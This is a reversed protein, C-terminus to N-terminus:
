TSWGKAKLVAALYDVRKQNVGLDSEGIRSQSKIQVVGSDEVEVKFDDVFPKGGNFAKAFFGKGSSSYEVRVTGSSDLDDSAIAWGGEDVKNQGEQPYSNLADRLGSIADSKSAGAPPRWTTRVCNKSDMPCAELAVAPAVGLGFVAVAGVAQSFAARRSSVKGANYATAPAAFVSFAVALSYIKM